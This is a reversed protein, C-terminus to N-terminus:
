KVAEGMGNPKRATAKQTEIHLTYHTKFYTPYMLYFLLQIYHEQFDLVFVKSTKLKFHLNLFGGLTEFSSNKMVMGSQSRRLLM